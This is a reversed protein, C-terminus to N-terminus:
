QKTFTCKGVVTQKYGIDIDYAVHTHAGTISIIDGGALNTGSAHLTASCGADPLGTTQNIVSITIQTAPVPGNEINSIVVYSDGQQQITIIANSQESGGIMGTFYAYAVAAMAITIAVMIIVGIVASVASDDRINVQNRSM